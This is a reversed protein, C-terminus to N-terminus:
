LTGYELAISFCLWEFVVMKMKGVWSLTPILYWIQDKWWCEFTIKMTGRKKLGLIRRESVIYNM